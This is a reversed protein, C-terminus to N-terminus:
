GVPELRSEWSLLLEPFISNGETMDLM